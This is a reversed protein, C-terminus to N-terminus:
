RPTGRRGVGLHLPVRHGAAARAARPRERLREHPARDGADKQAEPDDGGNDGHRRAVGRFPTPSRSPEDDSLITLTRTSPRDPRGPAGGRRATSSNAIRKIYPRRRLALLRREVHRGEGGGEGRRGEERTKGRASRESFFITTRRSPSSDAIPRTADRERTGQFPNTVKHSRNKELTYSAVSRRRTRSPSCTPDPSFLVRAGSLCVACRTIISLSRAFRRAAARLPM